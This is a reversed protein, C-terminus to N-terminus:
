SRCGSCFARLKACELAFLLFKSLAVSFVGNNLNALRGCLAQCNEESLPFDSADLDNTLANFDTLWVRVSPDSSLSENFGDTLV